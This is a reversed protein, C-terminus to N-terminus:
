IRKINYKKFYQKLEYRDKESDIFFSIPKEINILKIKIIKDFMISRDWWEIKSFLIPYGKRLITLVDIKQAIFGKEYIRFKILITYPIIVFILLIIFLGFLLFIMYLQREFNFNRYYISASIVFLLLVVSLLSQPIASKLITRKQNEYDLDSQQYLLKGLIDM